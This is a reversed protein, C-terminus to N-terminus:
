LWVKKCVRNEELGPTAPAAVLELIVILLGITVCLYGRVQAL